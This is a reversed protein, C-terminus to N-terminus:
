FNVKFSPLQAHTHPLFCPLMRINTLGVGAKSLWARAFTYEAMFLKFSTNKYLATEQKSPQSFLWRFIKSWEKRSM